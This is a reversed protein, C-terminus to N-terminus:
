GPGFGAAQLIRAGEPSGVFELFARARASNTIAVGVVEPRPAGEWDAVDVVRVDAAGVADTAYVAAVAVEGRRAYAVVAAVDGAFVIRDQLADWSGLATLAARAYSGAPVAGPEGVALKETPPLSPLTQWTITRTSDAPAILVLENTALRRRTSPDALGAEVLRVVPEDGAFVAADIPAGAEVQQRLTGSSGYTVVVDQGFAAVLAPMATRLSVAAAVIPATEGQGCGLLVLLAVALLSPRALSLTM